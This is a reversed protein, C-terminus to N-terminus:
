GKFGVGSSWIRFGLRWIRVQLGKINLGLDQVM